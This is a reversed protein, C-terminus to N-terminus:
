RRFFHICKRISGIIILIQLFTEIVLFNKLISDRISLKKKHILFINMIVNM